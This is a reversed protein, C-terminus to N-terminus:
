HGDVGNTLLPGGAAPAAMISYQGGCGSWNLMKGRIATNDIHTPYKVDVTTGQGTQYTASLGWSFAHGQDNIVITHDTGASAWIANGINPLATPTIVIRKIGKDDQITSSDPVTSMDLGVQQGDVRGWVLAKGNATVAISHHLGGDMHIITDNQLSLSKVIQPTYVSANDDGAGDAIGTGGFSNNGWGWVREKTDIAFSHDNGTYIAKYAKLRTRLPSPNLTNKKNTSTRQVIHYGLQNQEGCGWAYILGKNDIAMAHNAGSTIDTINKLNPLLVPSRQEIPADEGPLFGFIGDTKQLMDILMIMLL